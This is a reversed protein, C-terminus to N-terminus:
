NKINEIEGSHIKKHCRWYVLALNHINNAEELNDFEELEVIHHVHMKNKGDYWEHCSRCKYSDRIMVEKRIKEWSRGGYRMSNRPNLREFFLNRCKTSCLINGERVTFSPRQFEKGCCSCILDVLKRKNGEHRCNDSCYKTGKRDTRYESNCVKCYAVVRQKRCIESCYKNKTELKSSSPAEFEQHCVDCVYVKIASMLHPLRSACYQSCCKKKRGSTTDKTEFSSQCVECNKYIIKAAPRGIIFEKRHDKSLIRNTATM